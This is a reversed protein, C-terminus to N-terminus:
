VENFKMNAYKRAEIAKDIKAKADDLNSFNLYIKVSGGKSASGIELSDRNENILSEVIKLKEEENM